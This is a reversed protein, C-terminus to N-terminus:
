TKPYTTLIAHIISRLLREHSVTVYDTFPYFGRLRDWLKWIGAEDDLIELGGEGNGLLEVGGRM